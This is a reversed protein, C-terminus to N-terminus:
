KYGTRLKWLYGNGNVRALFQLASSSSATLVQYSSTAAGFVFDLPFNDRSIVPKSPKVEHAGLDNSIKAARSRHSLKNYSRKSSISPVALRYGLVRSQPSSSSSLYLTNKKTQCGENWSLGSHANHSLASPVPLAM